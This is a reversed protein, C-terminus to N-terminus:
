PVQKTLAELREILLTIRTQLQARQGVTLMPWRAQWREVLAVMASWDRELEREVHEGHTAAVAPERKPTSRQAVLRAAVVEVAHMPDDLAAEVIAHTAKLSLGNNVLAAILPARAAPTPLRVLERAASVTDPRAVVMGQVDAPMRLLRVRNEIYGKDKGIRQALERYSYGFEDMFRQFGQAEDMPDLDRRQLNETLGIELLERDSMHTVECPIMSLSAQRAARLRREGYVLQYRDADMPHPRVWLRSTFGHVRMAEALEAIDDFTRRIQFPSPDIRDIPIDTPYHRHLAAQSAFVEEFEDTSAVQPLTSRRIFQKKNVGAM